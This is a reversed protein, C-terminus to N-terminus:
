PYCTGCSLPPTNHLNQPPRLGAEFCKLDRWDQPLMGILLHPPSFRHKFKYVIDTGLYGREDDAEARGHDSGSGVGLFDLVDDVAGALLQDLDTVEDVDGAIATAGNEGTGTQQVEFLVDVVRGLVFEAFGDARGNDANAQQGAARRAFGKVDGGSCFAGGAGEILVCRAEPNRQISEFVSRLQRWMARSMANLRGEHRLVVRVVGGEGQRATVDGPM